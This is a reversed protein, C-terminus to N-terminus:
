GSGDGAQYAAGLADYKATLEDLLVEFGAAVDALAQERAAEWIVPAAATVLRRLQDDPVAQWHRIVQRAVKIFRQDADNAAAMALDICAPSIGCFAERDRPPAAPQGPETAPQSLTAPLQGPDLYMGRVPPLPIERSVQPVPPNPPAVQGGRKEAPKRRTGKGRM